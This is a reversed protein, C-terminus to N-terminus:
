LVNIKRVYIKLCIKLVFYHGYMSEENQLRQRRLQGKEEEDNEDFNSGLLHKLSNKSDDVYGLEDPYSVSKVKEKLTTM